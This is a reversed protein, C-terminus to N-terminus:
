MSFGPPLFARMPREAGPTGALLQETLGIGLASYAILDAIIQLAIIAGVGWLYAPHIRGERRLDRIMGAIPFLLTVVMMIRWAHPILLPMPLLRGLGPGTLIAMAVLMLRRHWGTHRRTRLAAIVIVGFLVLLMTNSILFENQDFFFPGGTRRMSAFMIALGMAVMLPAWLYALRGLSRHLEIRGTTISWAQAMYLAVWSFFIAAHVHYVAPVAFSSRGMALNVTFGAVIIASMIAAMTLYFGASDGARSPADRRILTAM